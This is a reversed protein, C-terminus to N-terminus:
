RETLPMSMLLADEGTDSYYGKRWGAERFGHKRYLEVAARNSPRVELTAERCGRATGDGLVERLLRGGLGKRRWGPHIAINNIKLTEDIIWSCAYGLVTRGSKLVVNRAYPHERLELLFHARTWPSPFSAREIALVQGLAAESLPVVRPADAPADAGPRRSSPM